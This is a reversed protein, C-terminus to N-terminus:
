CIKSLYASFRTVSDSRSTHSSGDFPLLVIYVRHRMIFFISLLYALFVSTYYVMFGAYCLINIEVHDVLVYGPRLALRDIGKKRHFLLFFM